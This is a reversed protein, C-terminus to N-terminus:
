FKVYRDIGGAQELAAKTLVRLIAKKSQQLLRRIQDGAKAGCIVELWDM